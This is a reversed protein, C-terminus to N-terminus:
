SASKADLIARWSADLVRVVDEQTRRVVIIERLKKAEVRAGDCLHKEDTFAPLSLGSDTANGAELRRLLIEAAGRLAGFEEEESFTAGSQSLLNRRERVHASLRRIAGPIGIAAVLIAWAGLALTAFAGGKLLIVLPGTQSWAFLAFVGGLALLALALLPKIFITHLEKKRETDLYQIRGRGVCSPCIALNWVAIDDKWNYWENKPVLGPRTWHYSATSVCAASATRVEGATSCLLCTGQAM